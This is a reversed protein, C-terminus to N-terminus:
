KLTRVAYRGFATVGYDEALVSGRPRKDKPGRWSTPYLIAGTQLDIFGAASNSSGSKRMVRAYKPGYDVTVKVAHEAPREMKTWGALDERDWREELVRRLEEVRARITERDLTDSMM